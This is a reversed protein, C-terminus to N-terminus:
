QMTPMTAPVTPQFLTGITLALLFSVVIGAIIFLIFQKTKNEQAIGLFHVPARYLLVLSYISLVIAILPGIYPLPGLAKGLLSPMSILFMMLVGSNIDRNGGFLSAIYASLWGYVVIGIIFMVITGIFGLLTDSVSPHFAINTFPVRYGFILTAVAAILSVITILPLIPFKILNVITYGKASEEKWLEDPNLTGKKILEVLYGTNM